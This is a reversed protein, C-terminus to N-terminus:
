ILSYVFVTTEYVPLWWRLTVNARRPGINHNFFIKASFNPWISWFISWIFNKDLSSGTKKLFNIVNNESFFAVKEASFQCFDCFVTIM